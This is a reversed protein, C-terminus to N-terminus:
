GPPFLGDLGPPPANPDPEPSPPVFSEHPVITGTEADWDGFRPNVTVQADAIAEQLFEGLASEAAQQELQSRVEEGAEEFPTVRRELVEIIHYGFQTRVPGVLEGIEAQGAAQAFEPVLDSLSFFGLDGGNQASGPDDSNDEALKAFGEGDRLQALLANARSLVQEDQAPDEVNLLIHRARVETFREVEAEYVERVASDPIQGALQEGLDQRVVQDRIAERLSVETFGNQTLQQQFTADDPFQGKIQQFQNEVAEESAVVGREAAEQRILAEQILQQLAQRFLAPDAGGAGAGQNAAAVRGEVVDIDIREGNVVAAGATFTDGCAVAGLALIGLPILIRKTHTVARFSLLTLVAGARAGRAAV